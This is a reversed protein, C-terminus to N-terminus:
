FYGRCARAGCACPRRLSALATDGAAAAAGDDGRPGAAGDLAAPGGADVGQDTEGNGVRYGADRAGNSAQSEAGRSSTGQNNSDCGDARISRDRRRRKSKRDRFGTNEELDAHSLTCRDRTYAICNPQMGEECRAFTLKSEVFGFPAANECTPAACARNYDFLLEEDAAIDRSAVFFILEDEESEEMNDNRLKQANGIVCWPQRLEAAEEKSFGLRSYSTKLAILNPECSHNIKGALGFPGAAPHSPDVQFRRNLGFIYPLAQPSHESGRLILAGYLELVFAGKPYRKATYLGEGSVPSKKVVLSNRYSDNATIGLLSKQHSLANMDLWRRFIGKQVDRALDM